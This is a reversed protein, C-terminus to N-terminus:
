AVLGLTAQQSWAQIAKDVGRATVLQTRARARLRERQDVLEQLSGAVWVGRDGSIVPYGARRADQIARQVERVTVGAAEAIAAETLANGRGVRLYRALSTTTM